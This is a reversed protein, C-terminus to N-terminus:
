IDMKAQKEALEAKKSENLELEALEDQRKALEEKLAQLEAGIQQVKLAEDRTLILTVQSDDAIDDISFKKALSEMIDTMTLIEQKGLKPKSVSGTLHKKMIKKPKAEESEAKDNVEAIGNADADQNTQVENQKLPDILGQEELYTLVGDGYISFYERALTASITNERIMQQLKYPMKMLALNQNISTVSVKLSRAIESPIMGLNNLRQYADGKEIPSLGLGQSSTLMLLIAQADNGRFENVEVRTIEDIRMLAMFRHHGDKVEAVQQGEIEVVQVVIPPVYFGSQYSTVFEQIHQESLQSRINFGPTLRLLSKDITFGNIRTSQRDLENGSEIFKKTHFNNMARLSSPKRIVNEPSFYEDPIIAAIFEEEQAVENMEILENM